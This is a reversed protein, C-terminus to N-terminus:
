PPLEARVVVMARVKEAAVGAVYVVVVVFTTPNAAVGSFRVVM